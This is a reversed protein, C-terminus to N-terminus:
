FEGALRSNRGTKYNNLDFLDDHIMEALVRKDPTVMQIIIPQKSQVERKMAQKTENATNVKSGRPLNVLEPGREGVMALGGPHFNTGSAYKPISGAIGGTVRRREEVEVTKKEAKSDNWKGLWDVAKKIAGTVTEFVDIVSEITNVIADFSEGIIKQIEPIHPEIWEWLKKLAPLLLNEFIGWAIEVVNKVVTFATEIIGKIQPMHAKVWGLLSALIPIFNDKYFAWAKRVVETIKEFAVQFAARITPIHSLVWSFLDTLIPILNDKFFEWVTSAYEKVATFVKTVIDKMIPFQDVILQFFAEVKAAGEPGIGINAMLDGVEGTAYYVSMFSNYFASIVKGVAKFGKSMGGFLKSMTGEIAPINGAIWTALGKLAKVVPALFPTALRAKLDTWVAKLNGLQNEYSDSERAAQGTAGAAEQMTKAYELRALQKGAEDLSKWDKKLEKAAWASIQTESGFLGIAEGGEYNGKIFSNLASNADEFSKDYFAAADATMTVASSAVDMAEGTELGLGKFMSTMQTMAPKLRAPFMGFEKGLNEIVGRAEGADAGFVQDFQASLAQMNAAAEVSSKSFDVIKDIAFAAALVGGVKKFTDMMRNGTNQASGEINQLGQVAQDDNLSITGFLRFLEM